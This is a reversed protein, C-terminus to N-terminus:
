SLSDYLAQSAACTPTRGDLISAKCTLPGFLDIGLYTLTTLAEFIGRFYLYCGNWGWESMIAALRGLLSVWGRFPRPGAFIQEAAAGDAWEGDDDHV